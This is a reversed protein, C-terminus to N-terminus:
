RKGNRGWVYVDYKGTEELAAGYKAYAIQSLHVQMRGSSGKEALLADARAAADIMEDATTQNTM